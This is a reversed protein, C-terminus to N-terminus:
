EIDIIGTSRIFYHVTSMKFAKAVQKALRFTEVSQSPSISLSLKAANPCTPCTSSLASTTPMRCNCCILDQRQFSKLSFKLHALLAEEIDFHDFSAACSADACNFNRERALDVNQVFGCAKCSLNKLKLKGFPARFVTSDSFEPIGILAFAQKLLSPVAKDALIPHLAFIAGLFKVYELLYNSSNACNARRPVNKYQRDSEDIYINNGQTMKQLDQLILLFNQTFELPLTRNTQLSPFGEDEDDNDRRETPDTIFNEPIAPNAISDESPDQPDSSDFTTADEPDNCLQEHLSETFSELIRKFSAEYIKPLYDLLLWNMELINNTTTTTSLHNDNSNDNDVIASNDYNNGNVSSDNVRSGNIINDNYDNNNGELQIIGSYNFKDMWILYKWWKTPNFQIFLFEDRNTVQSQFYDFYAHANEISLKTRTQLVLRSGSLLLPSKGTLSVTLGSLIGLARRLITQIAGFVGSRSTILRSSASAVSSDAPLLWQHFNATLKLSHQAFDDEAFSGQFWAKVLQRLIPYLGCTDACVSEAGEPGLISQYQLLCNLAFGIMEVDVAVCECVGSRESELEFAEELSQTSSSDVGSRQIILNEDLQHPLLFGRQKLERALFVDSIFSYQSIERNTPLNGFPIQSFRSLSRNELIWSNVASLIEIGHKLGFRQWDLPPLTAGNAVTSGDLHGPLPILPIPAESADLPTTFINRLNFLLRDKASSCLLGIIPGESRTKALSAAKNKILKMAANIDGVLDVEFEPITRYDFCSDLNHTTSSMATSFLSKLNPIQRKGASDVIIVSAISIGRSCYLLFVHRNDTHLHYVYLYRLNKCDLYTSSGGEARNSKFDEIGFVFNPNLPDRDKRVAPDVGIKTGLDVMNLFELPVTAEYIGIVNPHCLFSAYQQYNAMFDGEDALIEYIIKTSATQNGKQNTGASTLSVPHNHTQQDDANSATDLSNYPLKYHVLPLAVEESPFVIAQRCHVFIRRPRKFCIKRVSGCVLVYMNFLGLIEPHSEIHILDWTSSLIQEKGRARSWISSSTSFSSAAELIGPDAIKARIQRWKAKKSTIWASYDIQMDVRPEAAPPEENDIVSEAFKVRKGSIDEIDINKEVPDAEIPEPGERKSFLDTMKMQRKVASNSGGISMREVFRRIWDPSTVRPVPNPVHQMAAPILILKQIVSELRELYYNWDLITRIDFDSMAPDRLWKRLYHRKIEPEASFIAVPVARSAVPDGSPKISIIFKCALGKDKVMEDGLFEALRKATSISTSKQEGYDELSKSMSRNESILEFLEQDTLHAGKTHLIDLWYDAVKAVAAYCTVLSDGELFTKFLQSQFLKIMKLEGRRKIEFGKLEALKGDEAFVAYRKKLLKGEETSSPLIMARYPGDIEFFISNESNVTYKRNLPDSLTQYQDNTFQDHVLHNLMVCPYAFSHKKGNSLNFTFNEPFSAPLMCWIGDTDLELPRGIQEVLQRALRIIAAGTECVIGAMEMSYWRAGKRMVYGYFSNLICKHAVQLSDYLTHMKSWEDIAVPNNQAIAEDLKKKSQKHLAKYDYRRDRFNRVTDVYFSNERQCVTSTKQVVETNRTRKYVKQSYEGVRKTLLRHREAEPLDLYPVIKQTNYPLPFKESEIQNKIMRYESRKATYFEGRWSWTMKRQCTKGPRNFDCQACMSEDVIAPPQLRNTLIINPYMAAVDLHYILPGEMRNPNELMERLKGEIEAKVEDYNSVLSLDNVGGEKVLSFKLARDLDRILQELASPTMKFKCPIDSRFVGSELAEVHGGIYTESEILHGNHFREKPDMHKNPMTINCAYAEAMLLTECLTGSGKRLVEDPTLPIINCLSFIFPNVYKMYLYYTAVADSVSYNALTQPDTRALDTMEEPDLELPNYGLKAATVAKLGQSGAPLYSDRKVWRYCDMHSAHSSSYEGAANAVVGCLEKMDIGLLKSRTEVYPWDFSDGNYTVYIAPRVMQIHTFFRLLMAKEDPESFVSFKGPYQVNPTYEFSDLDKSVINRNTVL